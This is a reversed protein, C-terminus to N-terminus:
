LYKYVFLLFIAVDWKMTIILNNNINDGTGYKLFAGLMDLDIAM